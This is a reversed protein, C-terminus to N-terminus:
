LSVACQSAVSDIKYWNHITKDSILMNHIYMGITLYKLYLFTFKLTLRHSRCIAYDCLHGVHHVRCYGRGHRDEGMFMPQRWAPQRKILKLALFNYLIDINFLNLQCYVIDMSISLYKSRFPMFDQCAHVYKYSNRLRVATRCQSM